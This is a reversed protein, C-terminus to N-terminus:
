TRCEASPCPLVVISLSSPSVNTFLVEHRKSNPTRLNYGLHLTLDQMCCYMVLLHGLEVMYKTVGDEELKSLLDRGGSKVGGGGELLISSSDARGRKTGSLFVVGVRCRRRRRHFCFSSESEERFLRFNSKARKCRLSSCALHSCDAIDTIHKTLKTKIFHNRGM